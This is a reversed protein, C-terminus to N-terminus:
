VNASGSIVKLTTFMYTTSIYTTKLCFVAYSINAHSSNLRTSKRDGRFGFPCRRAAELPPGLARARVGTLPRRPQGHAEGGGPVRDPSHRPPSSHLDGPDGYRKFIVVM